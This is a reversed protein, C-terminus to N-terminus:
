GGRRLVAVGAFGMVAIGAPEPVVPDLRFYAFGSGDDLRAEALIQGANNIDMGRIVTAGPLNVMANLDQPELSGNPWILAKTFDAGLTPTAAGVVTNSNNIGGIYTEAFGPFLGLDRFEQAGTALDHRAVFGRIGGTPAFQGVLWNSDNIDSPAIRGLEDGFRFLTESGNQGILGSDLSSPDNSNATGGIYIGSANVSFLASTTSGPISLLTFTGNQWVCAQRTRGSSTAATVIAAGVIVTGNGERPIGFEEPIPLPTAGLSGWVVAPGGAQGLPAIIGIPASDSGDFGHVVAAEYSGQVPLIHPKGAVDWV